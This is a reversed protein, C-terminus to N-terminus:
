GDRLAGSLRVWETNGLQTGMFLAARGWLRRKMVWPIWYLLGGELGETTLRKLSLHGMGLSGKMWRQVSGTSTGGRGLDGLPAGIHLSVQGLVKKWVYTGAYLGDGVNGLSGGMSLPAWIWLRRKFRWTGWCLKWLSLHEMELARRGSDRVTGQLHIGEGPEGISGRHLCGDM